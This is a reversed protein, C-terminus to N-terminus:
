ATSPMIKQRGDTSATNPLHKFFASYLYANNKTKARMLSGKGANGRKSKQGWRALHHGATSNLVFNIDQFNDM